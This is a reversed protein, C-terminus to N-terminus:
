EEVGPDENLLWRDWAEGLRHAGYNLYAESADHLEGFNQACQECCQVVPVTITKPVMRCIRKPVTVRVQYPIKVSYVRVNERAVRRPVPVMVTRYRTEPVDEWYVETRIVPVDRYQTKYVTRTRVEPVMAMYTEIKKDTVTRTETRYTTRTMLRPVMETVKKTEYVPVKRPVEVYEMRTRVEPVMETYEIEKILPEEYYEIVTEEKLETIPVKVTYTEVITKPVRVAEKRVIERTRSVPVMTKLTETITYPVRRTLDLNVTRNKFEPKRYQYQVDKTIEETAYELMPIRKQRVEERTKKITRTRTKPVWRYRTVEFEQTRTANKFDLVNLTATRTETRYRTVPVMRTRTEKRTLVRPVDYPVQVPVEKYDTYPIRQTVIKPSWVNRNCTRMGAVCAACGCQDQLLTCTPATRVERKWSGMDRTITRYKTVPVQKTITRKAQQIIEYPVEVTYSQPVHQTEPIRVEYTKTVQRPEQVKIPFVKTITESFPENVYFTETVEETEPVTVRYNVIQEIERSLQITELYPSSAPVDRYAIYSENVPQVIPEERFRTVQRPVEQEVYETYEETVKRDELRTEYVVKNRQREEEVIRVVPKYVTKERPKKVYETEVRIRKKPVNVVYKKQVEERDMVTKYKTEQIEREEPVMVTYPTEVPVEYKEERDVLTERQRPEPVMINYNEQVPVQFEETRTETYQRTRQQPVKVTYTEVKPVQDVVTQYSITKQQKLEQRFRTELMNYYRTEWVPVYITKTTCAPQCGCSCTFGHDTAPAVYGGALSGETLTLDLMPAVPLRPSTRPATPWIVRDNAPTSRLSTPATSGMPPPLREMTQSSSDKSQGPPEATTGGLQSPRYGLTVRPSRTQPPAVVAAAPGTAENSSGRVPTPDAGFEAGFAVRGTPRSGGRARPSTPPSVTLPGIPLSSLDLPSSGQRVDAPSANAPPETNLGGPPRPISIDIVPDQAKLLLAGSASFGAILIAILLSLTTPRRFNM